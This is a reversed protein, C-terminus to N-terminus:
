FADVPIRVIPRPTSYMSSMHAVVVWALMRLAM